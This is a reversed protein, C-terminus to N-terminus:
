KKLLMPTINSRLPHLIFKLSSFLREVSVQTAPAGLVIYAVTAVESFVVAKNQRHTIINENLKVRPAVSLDQLCIYFSTTQGINRRTREQLQLIAEVSSFNTCSSTSPMPEDEINNSETLDTGVNRTTDMGRVNQSQQYVEKLLKRAKQCQALSLLVNIRGDIYLAELVVDNQLLKAEREVM